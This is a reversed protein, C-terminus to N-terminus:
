APYPFSYGNERVLWHGVKFSVDLDPAWSYTLFLHHSMESCFMCSQTKGLHFYRRGYWYVLFTVAMLLKQGEFTFSPEWFQSRPSAAVGQTTIASSSPSAILLWRGSWLTFLSGPNAGSPPATHPLFSDLSDLPKCRGLLLISVEKVQYRVKSTWDAQQRQQLSTYLSVEGGAEKSCNEWLQQSAM